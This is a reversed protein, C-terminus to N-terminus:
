AQVNLDAALRLHRSSKGLARHLLLEVRSPGAILPLLGQSQPKGHCKPQVATELLLLSGELAAQDLHQTPCSAVGVVRATSVLHTDM